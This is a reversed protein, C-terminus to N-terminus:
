MKVMGEPIEICVNQLQWRVFPKLSLHVKEAVAFLEM